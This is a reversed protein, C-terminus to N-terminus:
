KVYAIAGAPLTLVGDKFTVYGDVDTTLVGAIDMGELATGAFDFVVDAEKETNYLIGITEGNWTKTIAAQQSETLEEVITVKGRAIEPYANRIKLARVYYNLISDADAQQEDSPEFASKINADAGAPNRTKGADSTNSWLMALRKNEDKTGSSAM